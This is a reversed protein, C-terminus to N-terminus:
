RATLNRRQPTLRVDGAQGQGPRFASLPIVPDTM